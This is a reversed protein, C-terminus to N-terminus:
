EPTYPENEIKVQKDALQHVGDSTGAAYVDNFQEKTLENGQLQSQQEAQNDTNNELLSVEMENIIGITM